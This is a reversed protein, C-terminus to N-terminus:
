KSSLGMQLEKFASELQKLIQAQSKGPLATQVQQHVGMVAKAAQQMIADSTPQREAKQAGPPAKGTPPIVYAKAAAPNLTAMEKQLDLMASRIDNVAKLRHGSYDFKVQMLGAHVQFLQGLALGIVNVQQQSNAPTGPPTKGPTGPPTKGPTGPPTKAPTGPQGPPTKPTKDPKASGWSALVLVPVLVVSVLCRLGNLVM